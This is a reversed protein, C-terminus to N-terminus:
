KWYEFTYFLSVLRLGCWMSYIQWLQSEEEMKIQEMAMIKIEADKDWSSRIIFLSCGMKRRFMRVMIRKKMCDAYKRIIIWLEMRIIIFEVWKEFVKQNKM